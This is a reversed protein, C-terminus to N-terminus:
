LTLLHLPDKYVPEKNGCHVLYILLVVQLLIESYSRVRDLIYILLIYQGQVEGDPTKSPTNYTKLWQQKVLTLNDTFQSPDM